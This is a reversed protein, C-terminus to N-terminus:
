ILSIMGSHYANVHLLTTLAFGAIPVVTAPQNLLILGVSLGNVFVSVQSRSVTKLLSVSVAVWSVIIISYSTRTSLM